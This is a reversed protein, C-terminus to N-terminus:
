PRIEARVTSDDTARHLSFGIQECLRLMQVNQPLIEGVVRSIKEDRAVRLIGRLLQVGVGRGQWQDGVVVAFDADKTGHIKSLRVVGIIERRMGPSDRREAVLVIQRDYDSLCVRALRDHAIRQGLSMSCFYRFRVSQESLGYHFLVMLPEDEPRIPRISVNTGDRLTCAVVYQSPYPRIAPKPIQDQSTSPDHLLARADLGTFGSPSALLPNIEIEKIWPHDQVLQSFRVILQELHVLDVGKRGRIGQLAPYIKTQEILRRALVNNLPPLALARDKLVEVLQGGMGFLIVPGFQPDTSSGLILEYGADHRIMRQVTVGDFHGEGAARTVNQQIAGFAARVASADELDLAVGGVDTKHTITRSRLKLVVPYGVQDALRVAHEATNAPLAEVVPMGYAALVQKAEAETLTTRAEARAQDVIRSVATRAGPLEGLDAGLAPTEYLLKLNASYRWLYNFTRAASDPFDFTPIGARNLVERGAAVTEAGMWSTLIPKGLASGSQRLLEATGTPDTMEQPTLIVMLGDNGPDRAVIQLARAYRDPGADGLVDIPNGRSWHAPLLENLQATSEESLRAL